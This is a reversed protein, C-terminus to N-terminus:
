EDISIESESSREAVEPNYPQIINKPRNSTYGSHTKYETKQLEKYDIYSSPGKNGLFGVPLVSETKQSKNQM